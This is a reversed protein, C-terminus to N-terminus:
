INRTLNLLPKASCDLSNTFFKNVLRFLVASSRLHVCIFLLSGLLKTMPWESRREDANIQPEFHMTEAMRRYKVMAFYTDLGRKQLSAAHGSDSMIFGDAFLNNPEQSFRPFAALERIVGDRLSAADRFGHEAQHLAIQPIGGHFQHKPHGIADAYAKGSEYLFGHGINAPLLAGLRRASLGLRLGSFLNRFMFDSTKEKGGAPKLRTASAPLWGAGVMYLPLKPSENCLIKLFTSFRFLVASSRLHVCILLLSGLSGLVKTM